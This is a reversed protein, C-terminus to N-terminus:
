GGILQKLDARLRAMSERLEKLAERQDSLCQTLELTRRVLSGALHATELQRALLDDYKM